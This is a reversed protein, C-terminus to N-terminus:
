KKFISYIVLFKTPSIQAGVVLYFKREKEVMEEVLKHLFIM